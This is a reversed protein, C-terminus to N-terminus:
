EEQSYMGRHYAIHNFDIRHVPVSGLQRGHLAPATVSQIILDDDLVFGGNDFLVHCTPYLCLVNGPEDPGDHPTGLPRIHATEAYPGAPTMASEFAVM